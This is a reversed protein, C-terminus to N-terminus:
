FPQLCGANEAYGFWVVQKAVQTHTNNITNQYHSFDHGDSVVHITKDPAVVSLEKKLEETPVIIAHVPKIYEKFQAINKEWVRDCIDLIKIKGYQAIAQCAVHFIVTNYIKRSDFI